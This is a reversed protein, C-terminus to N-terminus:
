KRHPQCTNQEGAPLRHSGSQHGPGGAHGEQGDASKAGGGPPEGAGGGKVDRRGAPKRDRGGGSLPDQGSLRVSRGAPTRGRRAGRRRLESVFCAMEM